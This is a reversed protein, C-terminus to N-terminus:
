AFKSHYMYKQIVLFNQRHYSLYFNLLLRGTGVVDLHM